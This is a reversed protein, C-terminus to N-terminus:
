HHGPGYNRAMELIERPQFFPRRFNIFKGEMEDFQGEYAAQVQDYIHKVVKSGVHFQEPRGEEVEIQRNLVAVIGDMGSLAGILNPDESDRGLLAPDFPMYILGGLASQQKEFGSQHIGAQSTFVDGILPQKSPISVVNENIHRAIKIDRVRTVM